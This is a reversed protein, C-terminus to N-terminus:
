DFIIYLKDVVSIVDLSVRGSSTHSIQEIYEQLWNRKQFRSPLKISRYYKTTLLANTNERRFSFLSVARPQHLFPMSLPSYLICITFYDIKSEIFVTLLITHM